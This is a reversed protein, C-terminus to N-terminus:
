SAPAPRNRRRRRKTLLSIAGVTLLILSGPEPADAEIILTPRDSVNAAGSGYFYPVSTRNSELRLGNNPTAGAIWDQVGATNLSVELTEGDWSSGSGGLWYDANEITDAQGSSNKWPIDDDGRTDYYQWLGTANQPALYWDTNDDYFGYAYVTYPSPNQGGSKTLRMKAGFVITHNPWGTFDFRVLMYDTQSDTPPSTITCPQSPTFTNDSDFKAGVSVDACLIYTEASALQSCATWILLGFIFVRRVIGSGSVPEAEGKLTSISSCSCKYAYRM